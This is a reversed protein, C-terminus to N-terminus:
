QYSKFGAIIFGITIFLCAIAHLAITLKNATLKCPATLSKKDACKIAIAALPATLIFFLGAYLFERYIFVSAFATCYAAIIAFRYIWVAGAVDFNVVITKKGVQADAEKDPFENILIVLFVLVAVIFAPPLIVLNFCGTQLFYSGAVPLLGFLFAIVVEGISRYGLKLPPATYFFGGVIGILGLVLIFISKTILMIFLGVAAGLALFFLSIYLTQRPSLIRNQIYRRGGSFPNFNKNVWDNGSLHDFYDNAVNSGSHLSMMSVLALVFLPFDFKGSVAFGLTSGVLVPCASATLFAPRTALLYIKINKLFQRM